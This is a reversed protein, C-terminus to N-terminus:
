AYDHDMDALQQWKKQALLQKAKNIIISRETVFKAAKEAKEAAAEAEQEQQRKSAEARETATPPPPSATKNPSSTGFYIAIRAHNESGAARRRAFGCDLLRSRYGPCIRCRLRENLV